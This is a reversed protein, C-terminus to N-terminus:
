NEKKTKIKPTLRDYQIITKGTTLCHKEKHLMTWVAQGKTYDTQEKPFFSRCYYNDDDQRRALFIYIDNGSYPTSMLYDAEILSFRNIKTNYRFILRNDDFIKEIDAFPLFRNKIQPFYRSKSIFDYSINGELIDHFIKERNARAIRLDHLKHLGILHHFSIAEFSIHLEYLKGKRGLVIRYTFDMMRFYTNACALLKDM